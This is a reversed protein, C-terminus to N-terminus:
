KTLRVNSCPSHLFSIGNTYKGRLLIIMDWERSRMLGAPCRNEGDVFCFNSGSGCKEM